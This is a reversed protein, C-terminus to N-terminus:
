EQLHSYMKVEIVHIGVFFDGSRFITESTRKHYNRRQQFVCAYCVCEAVNFPVSVFIWLMCTIPLENHDPLPSPELHM